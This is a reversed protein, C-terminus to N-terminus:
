EANISYSPIYQNYKKFLEATQRPKEVQSIASIVSVGDAGAKRLRLVHGLKIGGIAVIPIDGAIARIGALGEVGIPQKADEKTATGYIPGVGIYDAGDKIAQRAEKENTASVGFIWNDPCRQKLQILPEDDQGVHIGDAEIEIALDVEDNVIFPVNYRHCLEKMKSALTRKEEGILAGAGKERFQFITIGGQLAEELVALPDRNTNNSGMIFYVQLLERNM